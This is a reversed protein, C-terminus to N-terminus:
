EVLVTPSSMESYQTSIMKVFSIRSYAGRLKENYVFLGTLNSANVWRYDEQNFDINLLEYPNNFAQLIYKKGRNESLIQAWEEDSEHEVGAHVGRSGYSDEPKIIWGDKCGMVDALLEENGVAFVEDLAITYPVHARVFVQERKTLLRMTEDMHLIKYLVKNHAIQTRFDGLLCVRNSKAAEVFDTVEDMHSLIDSTVARRYIVDVEMGSPTTCHSGNWGINRIDCIEAKCGRQEFREAFIKFENETASEMFDVIAINPLETDGGSVNEGAADRAVFEGYLKLVEDVWTDFLEFSTLRHTKAFERYAGTRSFAINLERDENMASTGDTNFECFKFDGTEEDYFIDIRAIPINCSYKKQRLVLEELEPSFGFLRRYSENREFEAYVKDFIGYLDKIARDFVGIERPTFLKPLYLTRVVRGHYKATSNMLYERIGLASERHEDEKGVVLEKYEYNLLPLPVAKKIYARETEKEEGSVCALASAFLEKMWEMIHKGYVVAHFGKEFIEDEAAYIDAVTGVHGLREDLTDLVDEEYMLNKILMAFGIAREAPMSDAARFELYKKLRVMPFYVSILHEMDAPDLEGEPLGEERFLIDANSTLYEAYQEFSYGNCVSGELYGCRVPDVDRWIQNRILHKKWEKARGIGGKNEAILSLIPALKQLVRLKKMADEESSFDICVQTSATARMMYRGHDGTAKFHEDMRLYRDKPILGLDSPSMEGNEVLPFVGSECFHYGRSVFIPECVARFGDYIEKIEQPSEKPYISIELQCAPEISINYDMCFIGYIKGDIRFANGGAKECIEELCEAMEPYSIMAYEDNYVFHELELGVRRQNTAGKNIYNVISEIRNM